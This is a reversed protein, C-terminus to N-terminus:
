QFYPVISVLHLAHDCGRQYKKEGSDRPHPDKTAKAKSECKSTQKRKGLKDIEDHLKQVRRPLVFLYEILEEIQELM